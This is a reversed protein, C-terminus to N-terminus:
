RLTVDLVVPNHDSYRFGADMTRISVTEINESLIFGDIVYYQTLESEPDLPQNLLRCTGMSDDFTYDWGDPLPNLNGPVWESTPKVVHKAGPFVQNFDGGAIVYNGKEYEGSIFDMLQRTQAEKGEGDDYAELHLNVLVLERGSDGVPIRSVLLCRKLNATRVPWSFPVPLSHRQANQMDYRSYIAIGSHVRGIPDSVPYPVFGCIYNPAFCREYGPLAEGYREWQDYGFTRDASRDVEQLFYIDADTDQLLKEIGAMNKKVLEESEPNVGQGGDMLFDAEEGLGAYGTNFTVIRLPEGAYLHMAEGAAAADEIDDPRYETASLYGVLGGAVLVVLLVVALLVMGAYFYWRHKRRTMTELENM